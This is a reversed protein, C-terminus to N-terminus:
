PNTDDENHLFTTSSDTGADYPFLQIEIENIWEGNQDTLSLGSVGVFWDPSPAIMTVLTVLPYDLDMTVSSIEVSDPSDPISGGSIIQNADSDLNIEGRFENTSGTEAMVEIGETALGGVEWFLTNDNHSAGILGSFHPNPVVNSAPAWTADFEIKYQATESAAPARNEGSALQTSGLILISSLLCLIFVFHSNSTRKPTRM